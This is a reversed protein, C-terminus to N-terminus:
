VGSNKTAEAASARRSWRWYAPLWLLVIGVGALSQVWQTVLTHAVFAVAKALSVPDRTDVRM